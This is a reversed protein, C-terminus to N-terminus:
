PVLRTDPYAAHWGFWFARHAPLRGLEEGSPGKLETESLEWRGNQNDLITVEGDWEVFQQGNAEYVRNAGSADTLVVLDQEGVRDHHVPHELLFTASIALQADPFEDHRLALVEDKNKLRTDRFPVGFMLEDTAFYEAYAAGERYDRDFGTDLSLVTTEPHRQRWEGWTTTVVSRRELQIGQGVLSGVVPQGTMTSWLSKTGQDYMLKNSRYLFGSTGLEYHGGEFETRYVIVSGCLTCYVGCLSEDGVTDKFMEHWALIRKPYARADGNIEVGFVVNSDELYSAEDAALMKPNTLPPIGDRRVGGWVIEDLRITASATDAFYEPFRTDIKEYLRAKFEVYDPHPDYEQQWLPEHWQFLDFGFEEGTKRRLLERASQRARPSGALRICELMMIANGPHWRNDIKSVADAVIHPDRDTLNFFDDIRPVSNDDTDVSRDKVFRDAIVFGVTGVVLTLIAVGFQKKM